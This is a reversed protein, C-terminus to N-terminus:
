RWRDGPKRVYNALLYSWPLVFPVIVVPLCAQATEMTDADMRHALWLPLAIAALWITKWALEFLMLPLMQLPYRVGLLALLALAALMAHAVGSMMSWPAHHILLPFQIAGQGVAILLYLARLAYLRFLSVM